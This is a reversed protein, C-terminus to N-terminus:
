RPHREAIHTQMESWFMGIYRRVTRPDVGIRAAVMEQTPYGGGVKRYAIEVERLKGHCGATAPDGRMGDLVTRLRRRGAGNRLDIRESHDGDLMVTRTPFDEVIEDNTWGLAIYHALMERGTMTSM